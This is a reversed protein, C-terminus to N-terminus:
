EVPRRLHLQPDYLELYINKNYQAHRVSQTSQKITRTIIARTLCELQKYRLM